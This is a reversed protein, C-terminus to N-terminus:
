ITKTNDYFEEVYPDINSSIFLRKLDHNFNNMLDDYVFLFFGFSYIMLESFSLIMCLSRIADITKIRKM